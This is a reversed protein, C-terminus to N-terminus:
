LISTEMIQLEQVLANEPLKCKEKLNNKLILWDNISDIARTKAMQDIYGGVKELVTVRFALEIIYFLYLNISKIATSQSKLIQSGASDKMVIYHAIEDRVGGMLETINSKPIGMLGIGYQIKDKGINNILAVIHGGTGKSRGIENLYYGDCINLMLSLRHEINIERYSDSLLYFYANLLSKIMKGQLRDQNRFKIYNNILEEDLARNNNALLTAADMWVKATKYMKVKYLCNIDQAAGNIEYVKPIYFYGDYLFLLEWITYFIEEIENSRNGSIKLECNTGSMIVLVNTEGVDFKINQDSWSDRYKKIEFQIYWQM